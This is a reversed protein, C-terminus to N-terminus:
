DLYHANMWSTFTFSKIEPKWAQWWEKGAPCISWLCLSYSRLRLPDQKCQSTEVVHFFLVDLLAQVAHTLPETGLGRRSTYLEDEEELRHAFKLSVNHKSRPVCSLSKLNVSM